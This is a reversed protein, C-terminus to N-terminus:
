MGHQASVARQGCFPFGLANRSQSQSSLLRLPECFQQLVRGGTFVFGQQM